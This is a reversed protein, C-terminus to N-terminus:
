FLKFFKGSFDGLDHSKFVISQVSPRLDPFSQIFLRVEPMKKELQCEAAILMAEVASRTTREIRRATKGNLFVPLDKILNRSIKVFFPDLDADGAAFGHEPLIEKVYDSHNVLFAESPAHSGIRGKDRLLVCASQFLASHSRYGHADVAETVCMICLASKFASVVKGHPSNLIEDVFVAEMGYLDCRDDIM